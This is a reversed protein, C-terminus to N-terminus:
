KYYVTIEVQYGDPDSVFLSHAIGTDDLTFPVGLKKLRSQADKFGHVSTRFAFHTIALSQDLDEIKKANPRWFLGLRMHGRGIMWTTKWKHVVTFGLVNAYWDASHQLNTVNIGVHDLGQLKIGSRKQANGVQVNLGIFTILVLTYFAPKM